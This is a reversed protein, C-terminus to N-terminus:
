PRDGHRPFLGAKKRRHIEHLARVSVSVVLGLVILAPIVIAGSLKTVLIVIMFNGFQYQLSGM